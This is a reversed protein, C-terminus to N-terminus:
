LCEFSFCPNKFHLYMPIHVESGSSYSFNLLNVISHKHSCPVISVMEQKMPPYNYTSGRQYINHYDRLTKFMEIGKLMSDPRSKNSNFCLVTNLPIIKNLCSNHLYIWLQSKSAHNKSFTAYVLNYFHRHKM